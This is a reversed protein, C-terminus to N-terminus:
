APPAATVRFAAKRFAGAARRVEKLLGDAAFSDGRRLAAELNGAATRLREAGLNGSSGKLTHAVLAAQEMRGEAMHGALTELIAELEHSLRGLLRHYLERKGGMIRLGKSQDLTGSTGARKPGEVGATGARRVPRADTILEAATRCLEEENLPKTLHGNMGAALSKEKDGVMAHATMAIIPLGQLRKARRLSATAAFGDMGPMQIDMFVAAYATKRAKLVAELGDEAEDVVFGVRELMERAIIRNLENDEALLVRVGQLHRPLCASDAQAAPEITGAEASGTRVVPLPVTLTFEAGRGPRGSCSLTGGMLEALKRSIALGLGTGGYRRTTSSDAQTFASFLSAVQAEDLGIGTDRVTYAVWATRGSYKNLSVHVDVWGSHTFKIANSLLNTLVQGIRLTDGIVVAPVDEDVTLTLSLRKELASPRTMDIIRELEHRPSFRLNEMELKGAEIKSFDLIDNLVRLLAKASVEVKELRERQAKPLRTDLVLRTMGLIANMPTRIEHSMNALFSSKARTSAEALDKALSLEREKTRMETVDLYWSMICPEGYYEAAFANILMERRRGDAARMSGVRWSVAGKDGVEQLLRGHEKADFFCDSLRAGVGIGFFSLAYPTAFRVLGGVQIVFCVPSSEMVNRLLRREQDLEAEKARIKRLDETYSVVIRGNPTEVRRLTIQVPLHKGTWTTHEWFFRAEGEGIVRHIQMKVLERVSAGDTPQGPFLSYFDRLYTAKDPAEFLAVTAANCDLFNGEEDWIGCALPMADLMIRMREDAARAETIDLMVEIAGTHKGVPDRLLSIGGRFHRKLRPHFIEFSQFSEEAGGATELPERCTNDPWEECLKGLVQSLSEAGATELGAPNMYICRGGEDMAVIPSPVSELMSKYWRMNETIMDFAQNLSQEFAGVEGTPLNYGGGAKSMLAPMAGGSLIERLRRRVRGLLRTRAAVSRELEDKQKAILELAEREKRAQEKVAQINFHGGVMRTVRGQKDWEVAYGRSFFWEWGGNKRKLRWECSFSDSRGEIYDRLVRSHEERDEPHMLKHMDAYSSPIEDVRYGLRILSSTAAHGIDRVADWDWLGIGMEEIVLELQLKSRLLEAQVAKLGTIDQVGGMFRYTPTDEGRSVIRGYDQLHVVTGDKRVVRYQAAYYPTVRQVHAEVAARLAPQDEPHVYDQWLTPSGKIEELTLGYLDAWRKNYTMARTEADYDWTGLRAADILTSLRARELRLARETKHHGTEDLLLCVLCPPAELSHLTGECRFRGLTGDNKELWTEISGSGKTRVASIFGMFEGCSADFLRHIDCPEPGTFFTAAFRKNCRLLRGETDLVMCMGPLADLTVAGLLEARGSPEPGHLRERFGSVVLVGSETVEDVSGVACEWAWASKGIRLRYEVRFVREPASFAERAAALLVQLDKPHVAAVPLSMGDPQEASLGPDASSGSLPLKLVFPTLGKLALKDRLTAFASGCSMPSSASQSCM